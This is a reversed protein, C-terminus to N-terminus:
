LAEERYTVRIPSGDRIFDQGTVIVEATDPLGQVWVGEREDRILTVPVFRATGDRNVRVGLRGDDDLTLASQPLLHGKEGDLAILIEASVGDRIARDPNPVEVEIRFTRTLPDASRSIFSVEGRLEQGSILRAGAESGPSLREIDQEPVFAVLRIPDLSILTACASGPQLLSGLEATDTELLGDFPATITLREIEKEAQDVMAQASELAAQKSVADTESSFGREALRTAANFNVEAERLRARAEALSAERTGPDLQCLVQGTEIRSGKRIPESVILGTTESRVEVKRAAETAGSLSLMRQVTRAESRLAVVTVPADEATAQAPTAAADGGPAGNALAKLADREMIVFYLAVAVLLATLISSFRM